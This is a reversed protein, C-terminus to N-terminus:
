TLDIIPSCDAKVAVEVSDAYSEVTHRVRREIGPDTCAFSVRLLPTAPPEHHLLMRPYTRRSADCDASWARRHSSWLTPNRLLVAYADWLCETTGTAMMIVTYVHEDVDILMPSPPPAAAYGVLPSDLVLQPPSSSTSTTDHQLPVPQM